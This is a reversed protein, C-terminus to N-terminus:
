LANRTHPSPQIELRRRMGTALYQQGAGKELLGLLPSSSIIFKM